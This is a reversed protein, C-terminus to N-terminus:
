SSKEGRLKKLLSKVDTSGGRKSNEDSVEAWVRKRRQEDEERMAVQRRKMGHGKSRTDKEGENTNNAIAFDGGEEREHKIKNLLHIVEIAKVNLTKLEEHGEMAKKVSKQIEKMMKSMNDLGSSGDSAMLGKELAAEVDRLSSCSKSVKKLQRDLKVRRQKEFHLKQRALLIERDMDIIQQPAPLLADTPPSAFNINPLSQTSNCGDANSKDTSQDNTALFREVVKRRKTKPFYNITFINRACYAEVLDFNKKYTTRLKLLLKDEGTLQSTQAKIGNNGSSNADSPTRPLLPLSGVEKTLLNDLTISISDFLQSPATGFILYDESTLSSTSKTSSSKEVAIASSPAVSSSKSISLFKSSSNNNLTDNTAGHLVEPTSSSNSASM